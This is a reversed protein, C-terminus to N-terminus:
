VFMFPIGGFSTICMIGIFPPALGNNWQGLGIFGHYAWSTLSLASLIHSPPMRYGNSHVVQTDVMMTTGLFFPFNFFAHINKCYILGGNMDVVCGHINLVKQFSTNLFIHVVKNVKKM